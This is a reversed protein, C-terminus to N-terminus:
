VKCFHLLVSSPLCVLMIKQHIQSTEAIFSRRFYRTTVQDHAVYLLKIIYTYAAHIVQLVHACGIEIIGDM